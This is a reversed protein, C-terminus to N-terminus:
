LKSNLANNVLNNIEIIKHIGEIHLVKGIQVGMAGSTLYELVDNYNEIGGCGIIPIKNGFAKNFQYVNSIALLKTASGSIGGTKISLLPKGTKTDIQMGNPISNSCIIYKVIDSYRSLLNCIQMALIKDSYPALKFGLSINKLNLNRIIQLLENFAKYDYAIIRSDVISKNPCSVNIEVLENAFDNLGYKYVDLYNDYDLLMLRLENWNSADMSIIYTIGQKYYTEWLSKYYKYGFNPMGMCNISTNNDVISFNPQPNGPNETLTCTKTIITKIETKMNNIVLENIQENTKSWCGSANTILDLPKGDIIIKRNDRSDRSDRSDRNYRNHQSNSM